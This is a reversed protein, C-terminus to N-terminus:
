RVCLCIFCLMQFDHLTRGYRETYKGNLRSVVSKRYLAACQEGYFSSSQRYSYFQYRLSDLMLVITNELEGTHDRHYLNISDIFSNLGVCPFRMSTKLNDLRIRPKGLM